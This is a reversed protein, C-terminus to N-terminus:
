KVIFKDINSLLYKKKDNYNMGITSLSKEKFKEKYEDVSCIVKAPNGAIVVNENKFSKSVVSGAGIIINDAITVGPLIITNMGVFCNDGIKIYGFLDTKNKIVKIVSNDHTILKVGSSITVNNGVEILYSEASILDSFTRVNEGIIAGKSRYYDIKLCMIDQKFIYRYMNKKIFYGLKNMKEGRVKKILIIKYIYVMNHKYLCEM